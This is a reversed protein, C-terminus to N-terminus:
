KTLLNIDFKEEFNLILHKPPKQLSQFTKNLAEVDYSSLTFFNYLKPALFLIFFQGVHLMAMLSSDLVVTLNM